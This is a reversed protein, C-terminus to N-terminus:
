KLNGSVDQKFIFERKYGEKTCSAKCTYVLLVGWDLDYQKLMSLMQPMIQFEFQRPGGCVECEPILNPKPDKAIYLPSGGREYRVVQDPQTSIRDRFNLFEKDQDKEAYSHLETEPVEAMTGVKNQQKLREYSELEKQIDVKKQKVEEPEIVLEWQSFLLSSQEYPDEENKGCSIKHFEKWHIVQHERCCYAAKKCKSCHKEAKCGCLSCLEVWKQPNFEPQPKDEPCEPPYFDNARRLNSRFVKITDSKNYQWCDKNKCVFIFLTRHFNNEDEEYPAYIQCLFIMQKSCVSCQLDEPTPLNKLDLWAPKGGVKSPFLRSEVQWPVCEELFGVDVQSM